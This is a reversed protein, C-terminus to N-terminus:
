DSQRHRYPSSLIYIITRSKNVLPHFCLSLALIPPIIVLVSEYQVSTYKSNMEKLRENDVKGEAYRLMLSTKGVGKGGILAMKLVLPDRKRKYM